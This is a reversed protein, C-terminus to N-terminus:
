ETAPRLLLQALRWGETSERISPWQSQAVMPHVQKREPAPWPDDYRLPTRLLRKPPLDPQPYPARLRLSGRFARCSHRIRQRFVPVLAPAIRLIWVCRKNCRFVSWRVAIPYTAHPDPLSTANQVEGGPTWLHELIGFRFRHVVSD